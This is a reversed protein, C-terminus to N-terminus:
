EHICTETRDQQRVFPYLDDIMSTEDNETLIESPNFHVLSINADSKLQKIVIRASKSHFFILALHLSSHKDIVFILTFSDFYVQIKPPEDFSIERISLWKTEILIGDHVRVFFNLYVVDISM